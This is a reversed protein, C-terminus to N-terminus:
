GQRLFAWRRRISLYNLDDEHQYAEKEFSISRYAAHHTYGKLRFFLYEIFYWIYFPLVLLELQQTLHIREHNLLQPSHPLDKKRLVIFPFLAMGSAPLRRLIILIGNM